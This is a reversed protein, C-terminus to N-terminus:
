AKPPKEWKMKFHAFSEFELYAELLESQVRQYAAFKALLSQRLLQLPQHDRTSGHFSRWFSFLAEGVVDEYSVGLVKCILAVSAPDAGQGKEIKRLTADNVGMEKALDEQTRNRAKRERRLVKGLFPSLFDNPVKGDAGKGKKIMVQMTTVRGSDTLPKFTAVAPPKRIPGM